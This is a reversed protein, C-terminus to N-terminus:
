VTGQMPVIWYRNNLCHSTTVMKWPKFGEVVGVVGFAWCSNCQGQDKVGGYLHKHSASSSPPTDGGDYAPFNEEEEINTMNVGLYMLKEEETMDAFLTVGLEYKDQETNIKAAEQLFKRFISLRMRAEQATKYERKNDQKFKTFLTRLVQPNDAALQLENEALSTAILATLVTIFVKM